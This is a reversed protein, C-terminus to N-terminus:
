EQLKLDFVIGCITNENEFISFNIQSTEQIM